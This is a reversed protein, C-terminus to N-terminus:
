RSQAPPPSAEPFVAVFRTGQHWADPVVAEVIVDGGHARAVQRVISLGLGTGRTALNAARFFPEFIREREGPSVGPGQDDVVLQVRGSEAPARQVVIRTAGGAHRQANDLLNRIMRRLLAPDGLIHLAEGTAERGFHVAEEAALALLDVSEQREPRSMADLRSALLMEGILADLEAISRAMEIAAPSEPGALKETAMRIRALPTRLEHSCNALLMKHSRVLQEVRAASENFSRALTAVEDKGEVAVRAALNGEGLERVSVKLRELRATIGRTIPYIILALAVAVSLLMLGIHVGHMILRHRPHIVLWRGDDLNLNYLPGIASMQWGPQRAVDVSCLNPAGSSRLIRAQPTACVATNARLQEALAMLVQDEQEATPPEKDFLMAAVGAASEVGWMARRPGFFHWIIAAAVLFAVLTGVVALYLKLHLRKL